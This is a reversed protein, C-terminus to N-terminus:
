LLRTENQQPLYHLSSFSQTKEKITTDVLQTTTDFFLLSFRRKRYSLKKNCRFFFTFDCKNAVALVFFLHMIFRGCSKEGNGFAGNASSASVTKSDVPILVSKGLCIM